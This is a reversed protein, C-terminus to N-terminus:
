GTASTGTGTSRASPPPAPYDEVDLSAPRTRGSRSSRARPSCSTSGPPSTTASARSWLVLYPSRAVVSITDIQLAGMRQVAARVDAKAAPRRRRSLGQAALLLARAAPLSLTIPEASSTSMAIRGDRPKPARAFASLTTAARSATLHSSRRQLRIRSRISRLFPNAPRARGPRTPRVRASAAPHAKKGGLRAPAIITILTNAAEAPAAREVLPRPSHRSLRAAVQITKGEELRSLAPSRRRAPTGRARRSYAAAREDGPTRRRRHGRRRQRRRRCEDRRSWGGSGGDGLRRAEGLARQILLVERRATPDAVADREANLNGAPRVQRENGLDLDRASGLRKAADRRESAISTNGPAEAIM